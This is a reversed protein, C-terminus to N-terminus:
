KVLVERALREDGDNKAPKLGLTACILDYIEINEFPPVTAGKRYAPGSAIFTARMSELDPDFGHAGKPFSARAPATVVPTHQIYWGENAIMVIPPIRRNDRFHLREPMEERRYVSYHEPKAALTQYIEEESVGERPRIGAVAGVFDIQVKKLDLLDSLAVVRDPSTETMGHDAVIVYSVVGDLGLRHVGERLKGIAADVIAVAEGTEKSDPGFKHGASDAEFFYLTVLRPREAEPLALWDLVVRIREDPTVKSDFKRWEWPRVGGIEAESGPWFMCASRVKQKEATVWIPEGGWWKGVQVSPEGLSFREGFEPDFMSNGIIGHSAPRLGTALTYFNPFTLTPFSASMYETSVGQKALETLNPPQYKKLYDSRFGDVGILIVIPQEGQAIQLCVLATFVLAFRRFWSVM